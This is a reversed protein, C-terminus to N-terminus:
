ASTGAGGVAPAGPNLAELPGQAALGCSRSPLQKAKPWGLGTPRADTQDANLCARGLCGAEVDRRLMDSANETHMCDCM